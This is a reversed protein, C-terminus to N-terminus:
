NPEFLIKLLSSSLRQRIERNAIGIPYFHAFYVLTRIFLRKEFFLDQVESFAAIKVDKLLANSKM